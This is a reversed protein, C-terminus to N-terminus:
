KTQTKIKMNKTIEANLKMYSIIGKEKKKIERKLMESFRYSSDLVRTNITNQNRSLYVETCRPCCFNQPTFDNENSIIDCNCYACKWDHLMRNEVIESKTAIENEGNSSEIYIKRKTKVNRDIRLEMRLICEVTYKYDEDFQFRKFIVNDDLVFKFLPRLNTLKISHRSLPSNVHVLKIDTKHKPYVIKKKRFKKVPVETINVDEKVSKKSM